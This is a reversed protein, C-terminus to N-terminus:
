FCIIKLNTIKFLYIIYVTKMKYIYLFSTNNEKCNCDVEDGIVTIM